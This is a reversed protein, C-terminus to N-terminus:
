NKCCMVGTVWPLNTTTRVCTNSSANIKYSKSICSVGSNAVGGGCNSGIGAMDRKDNQGCAECLSGHNAANLPWCGPGFAIEAPLSQLAPADIFTCVHFSKGCLAAATGPGTAGIWGLWTGGCMAISPYASTGVPGDDTGDLCGPDETKCTANCGDGNVTNGDDCQEGLSATVITDGCKGPTCVGTFCYSTPGCSSKDAQVANKCGTATNCSDVTCANGDDCNKLPPACTGGACIDPGTCANGDNCAATNATQSCGSTKDCGDTTCGNSDDCNLTAGSACAGNACKDGVTCVSGDADCSAGNMGAGDFVCSGNAANCSDTTCLYGDNCVTSAGSVCASSQCKDGVTCANGDSCNATNAVQKCGAAKDCSDNTCANGDDCNLATGATCTGGVCTDSPTCVSGDADCAKTENQNVYGCQGTGTACTNKRCLNDGTTSCTVITAPNVQCKYPLSVKDCFLTGNCLNGDELGACDSTQQCSCTNTGGVCTGSGCVDGTTCGNGDDCAATNNTFVCGTTKNCSDNTCASGDNCVTLSPGNCVGGSCADGTTCADGDTCPLNNNAFVCGTTSGCSDSTCLKGDDCTVSTGACVKSACKDGSTCANGDDCSVTNATNVCGSAPNCSDTTCPNNDNCNKVQPGACSGGACVDLETCASGDDCPLTNASNSCGTKADCADNTCPDKDDCSLASGGCSGSGCKDGSTCANGDDCIATTATNKCAATVLDCSDATCGNGDNCDKAAGPTCAGVKCLDGITCVNGDTCPSTNAVSKCGALADCSDDTCPNSDTCDVAAGPLCVGQKCADGVTCVSKDADCGKAENQAVHACAGTAGNCTNTRM